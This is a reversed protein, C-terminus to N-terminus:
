STKASTTTATSNSTKLFHATLWNLRSHKKWTPLRGFLELYLKCMNDIQQLSMYRYYNGFWSRFANEIDDYLMKNQELLRKYAKLRRRERTIAAQGIRRYVKGTETLTYRIQLFRFTDSLKAIHTKRDNIFLGLKKAQEKIGEVIDLIEERSEAIIYMDDMYRGYRKVGRVIKVYNDIPTPFYVGINQSVQDGINVSKLMMKEGTRMSKPIETYYKISNFKEDLCREYEDDTMYSVDVEFTRLIEDMLWQCDESLLPYICDRIKEHQINDYFKSLDVFGVYGENSRHELWYSHLDKEFMSRAFSIGKGKQSAGNNHILYPQIADNLVADCLAHRVIRDRVRSGHIFREKGREHLVFESGAATRYEKSALERKLKVLESIIDMEFRQPEEKWSSGKMSAVFADYLINMDAIENM